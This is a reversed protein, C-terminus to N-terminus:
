LRDSRRNRARRSAEQLVRNDEDTLGDRGERAIKALIDDLRADLQEEPVVATSSAPKSATAPGPSWTPGTTAPRPVPKERPPDASVIRLKPRRGVGIPLRSWRFDFRKFLYGYSAGAVHAVVATGTEGGSIIMFVDYAVYLSVLLWVEVPIVFMLLIERRPYFLAYLAAVAFIAGSAGLMMTPHRQTALANCAAWAFTSAVAASLYFALFDRPGYMAELEHGCLWLFYMNAILHLPTAHLFTATLLQWVHGRYFIADSHAAFLDQFTVHPVLNLRDLLFVAVNLLIIARCVPATSFLGAGRTEGRYYERDYIGM